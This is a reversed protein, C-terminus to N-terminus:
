RMQQVLLRQYCSNIKNVTITKEMELVKAISDHRFFYFSFQFSVKDVVDDVLIKEVTQEYEETREDDDGHEVGAEDQLEDTGPTSAARM